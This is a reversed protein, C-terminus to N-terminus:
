MSRLARLLTQLSLSACDLRTRVADHGLRDRVIALDLTLARAIPLGEAVEATVDAAAQSITCGSGEFRVQALAGNDVLAYM